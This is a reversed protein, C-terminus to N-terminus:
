EKVCRVSIGCNISMPMRYVVTNASFLKVVWASNISHKPLLTVDGESTSWWHGYTKGGSFEGSSFRIGNPLACFGSNNSLVENPTQWHTSGVEKLRGSGQERGGLYNILLTWDDNTPVRWGKPAIKRSDIVALWNYLCGQTKENLKNNEFHCYAGKKIVEWDSDTINPITEGNRYKTVRLNDTMWVQTGIQITKYINGDIDTLEDIASFNEVSNFSEYYHNNAIKLVESIEKNSFGIATVRAVTEWPESDPFIAEMLLNGERKSPLDRNLFDEDLKTAIAEFALSIGVRSFNNEELYIKTESNEKWAKIRFIEKPM